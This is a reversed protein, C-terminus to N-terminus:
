RYTVLRRKHEEPYGKMSIEEALDNLRNLEQTSMKALINKTAATRLQFDPATEGEEDRMRTIEALVAEQKTAWVVEMPRVRTKHPKRNGHAM